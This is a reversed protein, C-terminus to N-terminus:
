GLVRQRHRADTRHRAKVFRMNQREGRQGARVAPLVRDIARNAGGGPALRNGIRRFQDLELGEVWRLLHGLRRCGIRGSARLSYHFAGEGRDDAESFRRRGARRERLFEFPLAEPNKRDRDSRRRRQLQRSHDREAVRGARIRGLENRFQM